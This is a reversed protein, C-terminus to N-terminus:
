SAERKMWQIALEIGFRAASETLHIGVIELEKLVGHRKESGALQLAEWRKVSALVRDFVGSGLILAALPKIFPKLLLWTM